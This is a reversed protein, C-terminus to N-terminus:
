IRKTLFQIQLHILVNQVQQASYYKFVANLHSKELNREHMQMFLLTLRMTGSGTNTNKFIM